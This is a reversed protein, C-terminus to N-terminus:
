NKDGNGGHGSDHEADDDMAEELIGNRGYAAAVLAITALAGAIAIYPTAECIRPLLARENQM